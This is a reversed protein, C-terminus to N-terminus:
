EVGAEVLERRIEQLIRNAEKTLVIQEDQKRLQPNMAGIQLGAVSVGSEIIGYGGERRAPEIGGIGLLREKADKIAREFTEKGGFEEFAGAAFLEQLDRVRAEFLELPTAMDKYIDKAISEFTIAVKAAAENADELAERAQQVARSYPEWTLVGAEVLDNLKGIEIEYKELPTRTARFVQEAMSLQEETALEIGMAGATDGGRVAAERKAHLSKARELGIAHQRKYAAIDDETIARDLDRTKKKLYWIKGLTYALKAALGIIVTWALIVPNAAIALLAVKVKILIPLVAGLAAAFLGWTAVSAAASATLALLSGSLAFVAIKVAILLKLLKGLIFVLPGIAAVTLGVRVIWLRTINNLGNWSETLEKIKANLRLISPALIRGIDIGVGKIQNWLIRMQSSFSKLQEQYVKETIGGMKLLEENYEKIRHQLGLLPLIAQQSRAQFGLMGLTATRQQTSMKNLVGSLDGIITYLPKLEGTADYINLNFRDWAGRSDQFGKTMLRVMRSFMNGARQAKIGQDAYAALVAVGEELEIKYAKMAPGAQATLAESFQQTTANALTNAGTLVDTVRTMNVMNQQANKVTLGLASQADTALDTALAMDFAGAVAFREVAALSAMSQQADLGASALYFYSRALDKASTVGKTSMALALGEMEKRLQPTVNQMIALSKIMADDFDAFSKVAAVGIAVLPVTVLLSMQRGMTIMRASAMKMRAEVTKMMAMYQTADMRLHILLNGLDLVAAM